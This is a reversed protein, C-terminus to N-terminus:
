TTDAAYHDNRKREWPGALRRQRQAGARRSVRRRPVLSSALWSSSASVAVRRPPAVSPMCHPAHIRPTRTRGGPLLRSSRTKHSKPKIGQIALRSLSNPVITSQAMRSLGRDCQLWPWARTYSHTSWKRPQSVRVFVCAFCSASWASPAAAASAAYLAATCSRGRAARVRALRLSSAFSAPRAITCSAMAGCSRRRPTLSAKKALQRGPSGRVSSGNSSLELEISM